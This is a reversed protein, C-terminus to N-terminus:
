KYNVNNKSTWIPDKDEEYALAWKKNAWRKHTIDFLSEECKRPLKYGYVWVTEGLEKYQELKAFAESTSLLEEAACLFAMGDCSSHRTFLRWYHKWLLPNPHLPACNRLIQCGLQEHEEKIRNLDPILM